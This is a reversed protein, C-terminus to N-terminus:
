YPLFKPYFRFGFKKDEASSVDYYHFPEFKGVHLFFPPSMKLLISSFPSFSESFSIWFSIAALLLSFSPLLYIIPHQSDDKVGIDQHSSGGRFSM